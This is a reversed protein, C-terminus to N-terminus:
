KFWFNMASYNAARRSQRAAEKTADAAEKMANVMEARDLDALYLNIADGPTTARGKRIIDYLIELTSPRTYEFGVPCYGYAQYYESLEAELEGCRAIAANMKKKNSIKTLIFLALFGGGLLFFFWHAIFGIVTCIIAGALFGGKSKGAREGAEQACADFEDYQAKRAGFYNLMHEMELMSRQRADAGPIPAANQVVVVDGEAAAGCSPCFKAGAMEAGCNRCFAM